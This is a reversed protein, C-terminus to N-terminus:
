IAEPTDVSKKCNKKSKKQRMTSANKAVVGLNDVLKSSKKAKKQGVLPNL